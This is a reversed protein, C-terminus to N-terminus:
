DLTRTTTTAIKRLWMHLGHRDDNEIIKGKWGGLARLQHFWWGSNDITLHANRGDPLRKDAPRVAIVLLACKITLSHIHRLVTQVKDPEVHELVDVCMVVDAPEPLQDCGPIGPDFYEVMLPPRFPAKIQSLESAMDVFGCGYDLLSTAECKRCLKAVEEAYAAGGGSWAGKEAMERLQARYGPSALDDLTVM